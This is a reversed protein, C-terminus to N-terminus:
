TDTLQFDRMISMVNKRNKNEKVFHSLLSYIKYWFMSRINKGDVAAATAMSDSRASHIWTDLHIM